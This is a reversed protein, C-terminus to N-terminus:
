TVALPPLPPSLKLMVFEPLPIPPVPPAPPAPNGPPLPPEFAFKPGTCPPAPSAPFWVDMEPLATYKPPPPPPPMQAGDGDYGLM